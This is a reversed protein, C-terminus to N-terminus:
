RAGELEAIAQKIEDLKLQLKAIQKLYRTRHAKLSALKRGEPGRVDNAKIAAQRRIGARTPDTFLTPV